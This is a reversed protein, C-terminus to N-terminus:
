NSLSILYHAIDNYQESLLDTDTLGVGCFVCHYKDFHKILFILVRFQNNVLLVVHCVVIEYKYPSKCTM